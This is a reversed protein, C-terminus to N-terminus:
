QELRRIKKIRRRHRPEGSPSTRLFADLMSLARRVPIMRGGLCLVNADNHERALRASRRDWVVSARVGHIKNASISMGIGTGCCLVGLAAQKAAVAKAVRSAYDPYDVKQEPNQCGLDEVGIGKQELRRKVAEKLKWGAHDAGVAIKM